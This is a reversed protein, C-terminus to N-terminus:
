NLATQSCKRADDWLHDWGWQCQIFHQRFRWQTVPGARMSAAMNRRESGMSLQLFRINEDRTTYLQPGHNKGEFAMGGGEGGRTALLSQWVPSLPSRSSFLLLTSCTRGQGLGQAQSLSNQAAGFGWLLSGPSWLVGWLRWWKSSPQSPWVGVGLMVLHRVTWSM